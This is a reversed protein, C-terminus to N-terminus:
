AKVVLMFGAVFVIFLDLFLIYVKQIRVEAELKGIRWALNVRVQDGDVNSIVMERLDEEGIDAWVFLDCSKKGNVNYNPCGFFPKNPNAESTSWWLVPHCGCGCWQPVNSARSQSSSRTNSRMFSQSGTAIM